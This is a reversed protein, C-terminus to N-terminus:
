PEILEACTETPRNILLVSEKEYVILTEPLTKALGKDPENGALRVQLRRQRRLGPDSRQKGGIGRPLRWGGIRAYILPTSSATLCLILVESQGADIMLKLEVVVAKARMLM